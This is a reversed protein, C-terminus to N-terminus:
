PCATADMAGAGTPAQWPQGATGFGYGEVYYRTTGDACLKSVVGTVYVSGQDNLCATANYDAIVDDTLRGPAFVDACAPAAATTTAGAGPAMEQDNGGCAAALMVIGFVMLTACLISVPYRRLTRLISM